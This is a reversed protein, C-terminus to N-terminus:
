PRNSFEVNTFKVGQCHRCIIADEGSTAMKMNSFSVDRIVTGPSGEVQCPGGSRARFGSFSLGSLRKLKVGNEVVVKIPANVCNVVVNSFLMDRVETIGGGRPPLYRKPYEFLVGNYAKPIVLNSFVCNRIVGDGPCGVRVGNCRTDLICNSITINECVAPTAYMAQIARLVLCDDETKIISDSVTVERCADLDIGDNNLMRQDGIIRVRHISVRECQMLWFTWCPADIFSTDEFRINRCKYFMVLRPRPTRPKQTFRKKQKAPGYFALGSGNIEGPGTIAINEAEVARLFSHTCKEPANKAIFGRATFEKYDGLCTSAVIRCGAVLHLEVHSKLALPATLYCGPGCLVRGGGAQHCADIARQIAATNMTKGDPRAGFESIDFDKEM